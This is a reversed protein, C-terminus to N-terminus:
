RKLLTKLGPIDNLLVYGKELLISVDYLTIKNWKKNDYMYITNNVLIFLNYEKKIGMKYGDIFRVLYKERPLLITLLLSYYARKIEYYGMSNTDIYNTLFTLIKEVKEELELNEISKKLEYLYEEIYPNEETIYGIKKDIKKLQNKSICQQEYIDVLFYDTTSHIQINKLDQQLDIIFIEEDIKVTNNIHKYNNCENYYINIDTKIDLKNLIYKLIYALSKCIIIGNEFEKNLYKIDSTINNYMNIKTKETGYAFETDFSMLKGLNLYVYRLKEIDTYDKTYEKLQEVYEDIKM